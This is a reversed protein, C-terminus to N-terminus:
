EALLRAFKISLLKTKEDDSRSPVVIPCRGGVVVGAAEKKQLCTITKWVVNGTEINPCIVVNAKGAVKGNIGKAGAKEPLLANDFAFPGGVECHGFYGTGAFKKMLFADLTAPMAPLNVTEVAALMAVKIHKLGMKKAVDVANAVIHIKRTFNPLINIAADSMFFVRRDQPIELMGVHSWIRETRIKWRPDLLVHMFDGTRVMGKMVFRAKQELVFSATMPIAHDLTHVIEMEDVPINFQEGAKRIRSEDGVLLPHVIGEQAALFVAKLTAFDYPNVVAMRCTEMGKARQLVEIIDFLDEM